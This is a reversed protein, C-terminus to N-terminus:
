LRYIHGRAIFHITTIYFPFSDDDGGGSVSTVAPPPIFSSHPSYFFFYSIFVFSSSFRLLAIPFLLPYFYARLGLRRPFHWGNGRINWSLVGAFLFVLRLNETPGLGQTQQDDM